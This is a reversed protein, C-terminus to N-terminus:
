EYLPIKITQGPYIYGNDLDNVQKIQYIVKRTDMHDPSNSQAIDWLTDGSEISVILYQEEQLSQATNLGLATTALALLIIISIVLAIISKINISQKKNTYTNM